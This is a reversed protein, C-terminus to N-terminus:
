QRHLNGISGCLFAIFAKLSAMFTTIDFIRHALVAPAFILLNKLWQHVRLMKLYSKLHLKERDFVPTEYRKQNVDQPLM